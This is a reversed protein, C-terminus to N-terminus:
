FRKISPFDCLLFHNDKQIGIVSLSIFGIYSSYPNHNYIIIHNSSVICCQLM